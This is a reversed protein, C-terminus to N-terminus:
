YYSQTSSVRNINGVGGGLMGGLFGGAPGMLAAGGVTGLLGMLGGLGASQARQQAQYNAQQQQAAMGDIGGVDPAQVQYNNTPVFTPYQQGGGTGHGDPGCGGSHAAYAL